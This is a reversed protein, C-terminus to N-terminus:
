SCSVSWQNTELCNATAGGTFGIMCGASVRGNLVPL